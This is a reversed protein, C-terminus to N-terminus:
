FPAEEATAWDIRPKRRRPVRVKVFEYCASPEYDLWRIVKGEDDLIGYRM